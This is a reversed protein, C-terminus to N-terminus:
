SAAGAPAPGVVEIDVRNRGATKAKYMRGDAVHVMADVTDPVALFAVGGVSATVPWADDAFKREIVSRLRECAQRAQEPDTEPMLLAFEDGGLRGAVDSKRTTELIIAGVARLLDDGARHGLNDNVAKFNDLDVYALAVPHRRRRSLALVRNAEEYFTRANMLGSLSDKRSLAREHVLTRRLAAILLGIAVFSLWQMAFNFIAIGSSSYTQGALYNSGMLGVACLMAAAIVPGNGLEWAVLSLPLYYLPGIRLEVGTVYDIVGVAVIGAVGVFAIAYTPLPPLIRFGDERRPPEPGHAPRDPAAPPPPTSVKGPSTL